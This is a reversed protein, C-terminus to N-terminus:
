AFLSRLTSCAGECLSSLEAGAGAGAEAEVMRAQLADALGCLEAKSATPLLRAMLPVSTGASPDRLAGVWAGMAKIHEEPPMTVYYEQAAIFLSYLVDAELMNRLIPPLDTPHITSTFLNTTLTLNGKCTLLLRELEYASKVKVKSKSKGKGKAGKEKEKEKKSGLGPSKKKVEGERERETKAKNAKRLSLAVVAEAALEAASKPPAPPLREVETEGKGDGEEDSDGDDMVINIAVEVDEDEEEGEGEDDGGLNISIKQASEPMVIEDEVEVEEEVVERGENGESDTSAKLITARTSLGALSPMEPGELSFVGSADAEAVEEEGAWRICSSDLRVLPSRSVANKLLEKTKNLEASLAKSPPQGQEAEYEVAHQLDSVAARIKGQGVRATARRQLSKVHNPAILLACSADQEAKSYENLKLNAMSRNSFAVYNKSKLGLCRTYSKVAAAFNGKKYEANGREREVAEGDGGTFTGRAKAVAAAAPALAAAAKV